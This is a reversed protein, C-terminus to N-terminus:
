ETKKGFATSASGFASSGGISPKAGFASSGGVGVSKGFAMSGGAVNAAKGFGVSGAPGAGGTSAVAASGGAAGGFAFSGGGTAANKGFAGSATASKGMQGFASSGGSISVGGAGRMAANGVGESAGPERQGKGQPKAKAANDTTAQKALAQGAKALKGTALQMGQKAKARGRFHSLQLKADEMAEEAAARASERQEELEAVRPNERRTGLLNHRCTYLLFVVFLIVEGFVCIGYITNQFLEAYGPDFVLKCWSQEEAKAADGETLAATTNEARDAAGGADATTEDQSDVDDGRRTARAQNARIQLDVQPVVFSAAERRRRTTNAAGEQEEETTKEQLVQTEKQHQSVDELRLDEVRDTTAEQETTTGRSFRTLQSAPPTASLLLASPSTSSVNSVAAAASAETAMHLLSSASGEGGGGSASAKLAAHLGDPDFPYAVRTPGKLLVRFSEETMSGLGKQQQEEAIYKKLYKELITAVGEQQAPDSSFDRLLVEAVKSAGETEAAQTLFALHVSFGGEEYLLADRRDGGAAKAAAASDVYVEEAFLNSETNAADKNGVSTGAAGGSEYYEADNEGPPEEGLFHGSLVGIVTASASRSRHLVQLLRLLSKTKGSRGDTAALVRRSDKDDPDTTSTAASTAMSRLLKAKKQSTSEELRESDSGGGRQQLKELAARQKEERSLMVANDEVGNIRGSTNDDVTSARKVTTTAGAQDHDHGRPPRGEVYYDAEVEKIEAVLSLLASASDVSSSADMTADSTKKDETGNYPSFVGVDADVNSGGSTQHALHKNLASEMGRRLASSNGYFAKLDSELISIRPTLWSAGPPLPARQGVFPPIEAKIDAPSVNDKSNPDGAPWSRELVRNDKLYVRSVLGNDVLYEKSVRLSEFSIEPISGGPAANGALLERVSQDEKDQEAAAALLNENYDQLLEKYSIRACKVPQKVDTNLFFFSFGANARSSESDVKPRYDDQKSKLWAVRKEYDAERRWCQCRVAEKTARLVEMAFDQQCYEACEHFWYQEEGRDKVSVEIDEGNHGKGHYHEIDDARTASSAGKILEPGDPPDFGDEVWLPFWDQNTTPNFETAVRWPRANPATIPMPLGPQQGLCSAKVFTEQISSGVQPLINETCSYRRLCCQMKKRLEFADDTLEFLLRDADDDEREPTFGPVRTKKADDMDSIYNNVPHGVSEVRSLGDVLFDPGNFDYRVYCCDPSDLCARLAGSLHTRMTDISQIQEEDRQVGRQNDNLGLGIREDASVAACQGIGTGAWLMHDTPREFSSSSTAGAEAPTEASAPTTVHGTAPSSANAYYEAFEGYDVLLTYLANEPDPNRPHYRAFLPSYQYGHCRVGLANCAWAASEHSYHFEPTGREDCHYFWVENAICDYAGVAGSAASCARPVLESQGTSSDVPRPLEQYLVCCTRLDTVKCEDSKCYDLKIEGSIKSPDYDPIGLSYAGYDAAMHSCWDVLAFVKSNKTRDQEFSFYQSYLMFHRDYVYAMGARRMQQELVVPNHFPCVARQKCCSVEDRLWSCQRSGGCTGNHLGFGGAAGEGATRVRGSHNGLFGTTGGVGQTVGASGHEQVDHRANHLSDLDFRFERDPCRYPKTIITGDDRGSYAAGYWFFQASVQPPSPEALAEAFYGDKCSAVPECCEKWGENHPTQVATPRFPAAVPVHNPKPDGYGFMDRCFHKARPRNASGIDAFTGLDRSQDGEHLFLGGCQTGQGCCSAVTLPGSNGEKNTDSIRVSEYGAARDQLVDPKVVRQSAYLAAGYGWDGCRYMKADGIDANQQVLKCNDSCGRAKVEQGEGLCRIELVADPYYGDSCRGWGDDEILSEGNWHWYEISSKWTAHPNPYLHKSQLVAQWDNEVGNRSSASLDYEYLIPIQTSTGAPQPQVYRADASVQSCGLVCCSEFCNLSDFKWDECYVVLSSTDDEPDERKRQYWADGDEEQVSCKNGTTSQGAYQYGYTTRMTQGECWAWCKKERGANTDETEERLLTDANTCSKCAQKGPVAM